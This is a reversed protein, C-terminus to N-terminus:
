FNPNNKPNSLTAQLYSQVITVTQQLRHSGIGTIEIFNRKQAILENKYKEYFYERLQPHERQSDAQWAVELNLLLYLDYQQQRYAELFWDPYRNYANELWIKIVTLETDCFLVQNAEAELASELAIQGKAIALVDAETYPHALKEVYIRAYEPVFVTDFHKALARALTTKGTSEPGTLAIKLL